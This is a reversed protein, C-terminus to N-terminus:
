KKPITFIVSAGGESNNKAIITGRHAAIVEKCITLGLGSGKNSLSTASSQTFPEFISALENKPIGVGDDIVSVIINNEESDIKVKINKAGSHKQANGILNYLLQNIWFEDIMIYIEKEKCELFINIATKDIIFLKIKDITEQCLALVDIKKPHYSIHSSNISSLQFLSDILNQLMNAAQSIDRVCSNKTKDDLRSWNENLYNSLGSIGHIPNRLEHNIKSFLSFDEALKIKKTMFLISIQKLVLWSRLM